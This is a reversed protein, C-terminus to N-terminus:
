QEREGKEMEDETGTQCEWRSMRGMFNENVDELSPNKTATWRLFLLWPLVVVNDSHLILRAKSSGSFDTILTPALPLVNIGGHISIWLLVLWPSLGNTWESLSWTRYSVAHATQYSFVWCLSNWIVSLWCACDLWLSRSTTGYFGSCTGAVFTKLIHLCKPWKQIM